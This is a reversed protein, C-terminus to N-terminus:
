ASMNDLFEVIEIMRNLSQLIRDAKSALAGSSSFRMKNVSYLLENYERLLDSESSEEGVEALKAALRSLRKSIEPNMRSEKTQKLYSRANSIAKDRSLGTPFASEWAQKLISSYDSDPDSALRDIFADALWRGERINLLAMAIDDQIGESVLLKLAEDYAEQVDGVPTGNREFLSFFGTEVTGWFGYQKNIDM